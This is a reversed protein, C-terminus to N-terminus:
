MVDEDDTSVIVQLISKSKAKSYLFHGANKDEFSFINNRTMRV